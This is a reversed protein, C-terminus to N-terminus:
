IGAYGGLYYDDHPDPNPTQRPAACDLAIVNDASSAPVLALGIEKARVSRLEYTADNAAVADGYLPGEYAVVRILHTNM